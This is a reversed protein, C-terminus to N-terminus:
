NVAKNLLVKNGGSKCSASIDHLHGAKRVNYIVLPNKVLNFDLPQPADKQTSAWNM